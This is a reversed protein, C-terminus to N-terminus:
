IYRGEAIQQGGRFVPALAELDSLQTQPRNCEDISLTVTEARSEGTVKDTIIKTATMPAIEAEFHGAAQAQATRQQSQLAYADQAARSIGYRAAVIEATELMSMYLAPHRVV